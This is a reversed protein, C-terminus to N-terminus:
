IFYNSECQIYLPNSTSIKLLVVNPRQDPNSGFSVEAVSQYLLIGASKINKLSDQFGAQFGKKLNFSSVLGVTRARVYV